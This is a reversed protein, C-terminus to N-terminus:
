WMAVIDTATTGDASPWLTKVRVPLPQGDPCNKFVTKTLAADDMGQVCVNGGTGIYLTAGSPFEAPESDNPDVAITNRAPATARQTPTVPIRAM